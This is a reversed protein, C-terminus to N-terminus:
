MSSAIPEFTAAASAPAAGSRLSKPYARPPSLRARSAMAACPGRARPPVSGVCARRRGSVLGGIEEGTRAVRVAGGGEAEDCRNRKAVRRDDGRDVAVGDADARRHQKM